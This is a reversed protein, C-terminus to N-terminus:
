SKDVANTKRRRRVEAGALGVLGIGLLAITTPEPVPEQGPPGGNGNGDIDHTISWQMVSRAVFGGPEWWTDGQFARAGVRARIDVLDTSMVDLDFEYVHTNPFNFM